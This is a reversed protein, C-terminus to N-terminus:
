IQGEPTSAGATVGVAGCGALWAPDIEDPSEIHRTRPCAAACIDALRSTNSSNRGGIVVIADVEDALAAAAEQRQRTAFCITNKVLLQVGRQELAAVVADLVERTQTTQVVVGVPGDLTDPLDDPGAVVSVSAGAERACAVLGEVEPHGAEGVVVVHRGQEALDAAARQARAVHPCTADVLPLGCAAVSRKVAPTVGHSRIVVTGAGAVDEVGDVARVGREALQAVVQPNHILPGLTYVRGGDEVAKLALDLARQVGYCAGAYAARVVRM